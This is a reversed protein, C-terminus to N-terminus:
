VCNLPVPEGEPHNIESEDGFLMRDRPLTTSSNPRAESDSIRILMISPISHPTKPDNAHLKFLDPQDRKPSGCKVACKGGPRRDVRIAERAFGRMKGPRIEDRRAKKIEVHSLFQIPLCNSYDTVRDKIRPWGGVVVGGASMLVVGCGSEM